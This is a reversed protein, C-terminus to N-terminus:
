YTSRADVLVTTAIQDTANKLDVSVARAKKPRPLFDLLSSFAPTPKALEIQDRVDTILSGVSPENGSELKNQDINCLYSTSSSKVTKQLKAVSDQLNVVKVSKKYDEVRNLYVTARICEALMLILIFLLAVVPIIIKPKRKFLSQLKKYYKRIKKM